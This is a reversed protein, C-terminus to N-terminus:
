FIKRVSVTVTRGLPDLVYPQYRVPVTGDRARARPLDDLINAGAISLRLGKAWSEGPLLTGLDAFARLGILTRAAFRIDSPAPASGARIETASRYSATAQLGAGRGSLGANFQVIHRPQGGGYGAAGGDLLDIAPLGPRPLRDSRLTWTHNLSVNMSLASFVGGAAAPAAASQAPADDADGGDDGGAAMGLRRTGPGSPKGIPGAYALGWHLQERLDRAFSVSRADVRILHGGADRIFRGPYAAEVAASLPPLAALLNRTRDRLYDISLSMRGDLLQSLNAGFTLTRRQANPVAPNGGSVVTVLVSEARISDYFRVGDTEIVPDRLVALPPPISDVTLSARL